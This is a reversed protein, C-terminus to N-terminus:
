LATFLIGAVRKNDDRVLVAKFRSQPSIYRASDYPNLIQDIVTYDSEYGSGFRGSSYDLKRCSGSTGTKLSFGQNYNKSVYVCFSEKTEYRRYATVIQSGSVIQGDFASYQQDSLEREQMAAEGNALDVVAQAKGWLLLGASVIALTLLISVATKLFSAINEM